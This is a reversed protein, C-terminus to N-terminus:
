LFATTKLTTSSGRLITHLTLTIGLEFHKSNAQPRYLIDSFSYEKM